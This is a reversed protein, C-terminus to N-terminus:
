LTFVQSGGSDKVELDVGAQMDITAGGLYASQLSVSGGSSGVWSIGNYVELESTDTNYIETGEAPSVLADRELTTLQPVSLTKTM